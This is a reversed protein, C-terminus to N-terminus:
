FAKLNVELWAKGTHSRRIDGTKTFYFILAVHIILALTMVGQALIKAFGKSVLSLTLFVIFVLGLFYFIWKLDELVGYMVVDSFTFDVVHNNFILLLEIVRFLLMLVLFILSMGWFNRLVKQTQDLFTSRIEAKRAM